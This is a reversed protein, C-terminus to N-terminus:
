KKLRKLIKKLEESEYNVEYNNNLQKLIEKKQYVLKLSDKRVFRLGCLNQVLDLDFLTDNLYELVGIKIMGINSSLLKYREEDSYNLLFMHCNGIGGDLQYLAENHCFIEIPDDKLIEKKSKKFLENREELIKKYILLIEKETQNNIKKIRKDLNKIEKNCVKTFFADGFDVDNCLHKESFLLYNSDYDAQCDYMFYTEMLKQMDINSSILYNDIDLGRKQIVKDDFHLLDDFEWGVNKIRNRLEIEACKRLMDSNKDNLIILILNSICIHKLDKIKM